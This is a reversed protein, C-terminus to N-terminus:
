DVKHLMSAEHLQVFVERSCTSCAHVEVHMAHKSYPLIDTKITTIRFKISMRQLRHAFTVTQQNDRRMLQRSTSYQRDRHSHIGAIFLL